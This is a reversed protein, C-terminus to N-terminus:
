IIISIEAICPCAHLLYTYTWDFLISVSFSFLIHEGNDNANLRKWLQSREFRYLTKPTAAVESFLKQFEKNTVSWKIENVHWFRQDKEDKSNKSRVRVLNPM